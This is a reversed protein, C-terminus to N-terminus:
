IRAGRNFFGTSHWLHAQRPNNVVFQIALPEWWAIDWKECEMATMSWAPM